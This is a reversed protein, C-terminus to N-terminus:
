CAQLFLPHTRVASQSYGLPLLWLSRRGMTAKKSDTGTAGGHM